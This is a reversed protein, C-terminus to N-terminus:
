LVARGQLPVPMVWSCGCAVLMIQSGCLPVFVVCPDTHHEDAFHVTLIPSTPALLAHLFGKRISQLLRTISDSSVASVVAANWRGPLDVTFLGPEWLHLMRPQDIACCMLQLEWVSLQLHCTSSLVVMGWINTYLFICTYIFCVPSSASCISQSMCCTVQSM